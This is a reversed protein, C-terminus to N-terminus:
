EPKDTEISKPAAQAARRKESARVILVIAVVILAVAAAAIGLVGLLGLVFPAAAVDFLSNRISKIHKM